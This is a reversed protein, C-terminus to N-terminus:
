TNYSVYAIGQEALNQASIALLNDQVHGPVWSYVGHSIIYDFKGWAPDVDQISAHAIHINTLGLEKIGEHGMEVQRRWLDIGVFESRPLHFAIPILNGGSACGLELVRCRTLPAPALGFLHGLTALRDPHTQPFPQSVYPVEDYSTRHESYNLDLNMPVVAKPLPPSAANTHAGAPSFPTKKWRRFHTGTLALSVSLLNKITAIL